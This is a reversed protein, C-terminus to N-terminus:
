AWSSAVGARLPQKSEDCSAEVAGNLGQWCDFSEVADCMSEGAALM